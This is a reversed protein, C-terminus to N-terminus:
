KADHTGPVIWECDSPLSLHKRCGIYLRDPPTYTVGVDASYRVVHPTPNALAEQLIDYFTRIKPWERRWDAIMRAAEEETLPILQRAM